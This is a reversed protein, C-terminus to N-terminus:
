FYIIEKLINIIMFVKEKKFQFQNKKNKLKNKYLKEKMVLNIIKIRNFNIKKM